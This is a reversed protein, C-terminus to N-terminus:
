AAQDAAADDQAYTTTATGAALAFLTVLGLFLPSLSLKENTM